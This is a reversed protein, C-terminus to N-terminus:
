GFSSFIPLFCRHFTRELSKGKQRSRNVFMAVVLLEKKRIPQNKKIKEESVAQGFSVVSALHHCFSVNGELFMNLHFKLLIVLVEERVNIGDDVLEPLKPIETL